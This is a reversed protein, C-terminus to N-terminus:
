RQKYYAWGNLSTPITDGTYTEATTATAPGAGATIDLNGSSKFQEYYTKQLVKEEQCILKQQTQEKLVNRM